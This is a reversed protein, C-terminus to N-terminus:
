VGCECCVRCECCDLSGPRFPRHHPNENKSLEQVTHPHQIRNKPKKPKKNQPYPFAPPWTSKGVECWLPGQLACNQGNGPSAINIKEPNPGPAKQLQLIPSPRFFPPTILHYPVVTTPLSWVPRLMSLLESKPLEIKDLSLSMDCDIPFTSLGYRGQLVFIVWLAFRMKMRANMTRARIQRILASATVSINKETKLRVDNPKKMQIISIRANPIIVTKITRRTRGACRRANVGRILGEEGEGEEDDLGEGEGDGGCGRRLGEVFADDAGVVPVDAEGHVREVAVGDGVVAGLDGGGDVGAEVLDFLAVLEGRRVAVVIWVIVAVVLLQEREIAEALRLRQHLKGDDLSAHKLLARVLSRVRHNEIHHPPETPDQRMPALPAILEMKAPPM